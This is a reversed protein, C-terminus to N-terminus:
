DRGGWVIEAERSSKLRLSQLGRLLAVDDHCRASLQAAGGCDLCLLRVRDSALDVEIRESGCACDLRGVEALAQISALTEYMLNPHDFFGAYDPDFVLNELSDQHSIAVRVAEDEGIYGIAYESDHCYLPVPRGKVLEAVKTRFEHEMDCAVCGVLACLMGGSRHLEAASAGCSCRVVEHRGILFVSLSHEIQRGCTSCRFALLCETDIVM